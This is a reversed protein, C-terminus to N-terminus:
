FQVSVMLKFFNTAILQKGRVDTYIAHSPDFYIRTKGADV